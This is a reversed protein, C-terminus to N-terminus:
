WRTQYTKVRSQIELDRSSKYRFFKVAAEFYFKGVLCFRRLRKQGYTDFGSVVRAM